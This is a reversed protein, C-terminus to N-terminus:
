KGHLMEELKEIMEPLNEVNRCFNSGGATRIEEEDRFGWTVSLCVMGANKATRVDVESDGVYICREPTLGLKEAAKYVMDPAPKRPVGPTDGQTHPILGAFYDRCLINVASDPKNSVVAMPYGRRRFEELVELIGPYPGTKVQCHGDYYEKFCALVEARDPDDAKGPLARQILNAAGNGVFCRIEELSREPCGFSRLAFNTGDKLDELTDLLTGDLDWIIGTDRM